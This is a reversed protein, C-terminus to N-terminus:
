KELLPLNIEDDIDNSKFFETISVEFVESPKELTSQRTSVKLDNNGSLFRFVLVM